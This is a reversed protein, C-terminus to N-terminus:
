AREEMETAIEKLAEELAGTHDDTQWPISDWPHVRVIGRLIEEFRMQDRESEIGFYEYLGRVGDDWEIMLGFDEWHANIFDRVIDDENYHEYPDAANEAGIDLHLAPIDHGLDMVACIMEKDDNDHPYPRDYDHHLFGGIHAGVCAGCEEGKYSLLVGNEQRVKKRRLYDGFDKCFGEIRDQTLADNMKTEM